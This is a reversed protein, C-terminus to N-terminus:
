GVIVATPRTIPASRTAQAVGPQHAWPHSMDNPVRPAYQLRPSADCYPLRRSPTRRPEPPKRTAQDADPLGLPTGSPKPVGDHGSSARPLQSSARRTLPGCSPSMGATEAPRPVTTIADSADPFVPRPVRTPPRALTDWHDSMDYRTSPVCATTPRATTPGRASADPGMPGRRASTASTDPLSSSRHGVPWLVHRMCLSTMRCTPRGHPRRMPHPPTTTMDRRRSHPGPPRVQCTAAQAARLPRAQRM